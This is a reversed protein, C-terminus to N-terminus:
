RQASGGSGNADSGAGRDADERRARSSGNGGLVYRSEKGSYQGPWREGSVTVWVLTEDTEASYVFKLDTIFQTPYINDLADFLAKMSSVHMRHPCRTNYFRVEEEPKVSAFGGKTQRVEAM